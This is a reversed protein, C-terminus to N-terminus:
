NTDILNRGVFQASENSVLKIDTTVLYANKGYATYTKLFVWGVFVKVIEINPEKSWVVEYSWKLSWM